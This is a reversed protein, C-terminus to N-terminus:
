VANDSRGNIKNYWDPKPRGKNWRAIKSKAGIYYARYAVVADPNKYIDPMAQVFPSRNEKQPLNLTDSFEDCWDIVRLSKHVKKYRREYEAALAWAHNLLWFYNKENERAWKACPHNYHTRKCPATGPEFPSCLLQASELVMKVVHVDCQMKAATTPNTDLVFINM